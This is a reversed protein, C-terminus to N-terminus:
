NTGLSSHIKTLRLLHQVARKVKQVSPLQGHKVMSVLKNLYGRSMIFKEVKKQTTVLKDVPIDSMNLNAEMTGIEAWGELTTPPVFRGESVCLDYLETGPYPHFVKLGTYDPKIKYIWEETEKLEAETETPLGIMFSGDTLVGYKKCLGIATQVQELKMDKQIYDLVRQSGSELGFQIQFVGASKLAKITDEDIYNVRSFLYIRLGLPRIKECIEITRKKISTFNDDVIVFNKKHYKAELDYFLKITKEATLSRWSQQGFKGFIGRNICYKCRWPCGRSTSITIAEYKDMEVLDYDPDPLTNIDILSTLPNLDIGQYSLNGEILQEFAYEGESVIVHDIFSQSLCSEPLLTPHVGGWVIKANPCLERVHKSLNVADFIVRGTMVSFGVYDPNLSLIAKKFEEDSEHINRDFVVVKHGKSRLYTGLYIAWLPPNLEEEAINMYSFSPQVLFVTKM